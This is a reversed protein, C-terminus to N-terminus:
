AIKPLLVSLKGIVEELASLSQKQLMVTDIGGAMNNQDIAIDHRRIPGTPLGSKDTPASAVYGASKVVKGAHIQYAVEIQTAKDVVRSLTMLGGLSELQFGNAIKQNFLGSVLDFAVSYSDYYTASAETFDDEITELQIVPQDRDRSQYFGLSSLLRKVGHQPLQGNNKADDFGAEVEHQRDINPEDATASEQYYAAYAETGIDFEVLREVVSDAREIVAALREDIGPEGEPSSKIEPNTTM